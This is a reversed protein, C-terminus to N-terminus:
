SCLNLTGPRRTPPVQHFFCCVAVIECCHAPRPAVRLTWDCCKCLHSKPGTVSECCQVAPALGVVLWMPVACSSPTLNLRSCRAPLMSGTVLGKSALEGLFPSPTPLEHHIDLLFSPGLEHAALWKCMHAAAGPFGGYQVSYRDTQCSRDHRWGHGNAAFPLFSWPVRAGRQPSASLCGVAEGRRRTGESM